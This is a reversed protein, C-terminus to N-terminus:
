YDPASSFYFVPRTQVAVMEGYSPVSAPVTIIMVQDHKLMQNITHTIIKIIVCVIEPEVYVLYAWTQHYDRKGCYITAMDGSTNQGWEGRPLQPQAGTADRGRHCLPVYPARGRVGRGGRLFFLWQRGGAGGSGPPEGSRPWTHGRGRRGDWDPRRQQVEWLGPVAQSQQLLLLLFVM